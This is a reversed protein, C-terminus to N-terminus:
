ELLEIDDLAEDNLDFKDFISFNKKEEKRFRQDDRKFINEEEIKKSQDHYNSHAVIKIPEEKVDDRIIESFKPNQILSSPNNREKAVSSKKTRKM